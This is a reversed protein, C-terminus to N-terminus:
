QATFNLAFKKNLIHPSDNRPSHVMAKGLRFIGPLDLTSELHVLETSVSGLRRSKSERLPLSSNKNQKRKKRPLSHIYLFQQKLCFISTSSSTICCLALELLLLSFYCINCPPCSFFGLSSYLQRILSKLCCRDLDRAPSQVTQSNM